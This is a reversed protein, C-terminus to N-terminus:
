KAHSNPGVKRLITRMKDLPSASPERFVIGGPVIVTIETGSSASSVITLKGGIRAVRERMGQMGFHGAKGHDGIASDIGVGNDKVQLTLDHGYKLEVELRSGKSHTCANRIAEFGVRYIEDRVVPHLEKADGTVSFSAETPGLLRCEETARQFSEALDNQQTTSTRLSNLVARGEQTAQGLWVSLQEVAHRMREPDDSKKLANDAVLKSGQITQLFTDHLERAMRTREALREDFRASLSDHIQQVRLRYFVWILFAGSLVCLGLFWKTQFWAPAVSFDLSAGDNNWIGDSNAAAVQFTYKGPALNNYIAERRSGADLWDHSLGVLRYRFKVKDPRVFSLASYHIELSKINSSLAVANDAISYPKGDAAVAEIHVPPAVADHPIRRPDIKQLYQGNSFWVQGDESVAARSTSIGSFVGETSDFLRWPVQTTKEDWWRQIDVSRVQVLGSSMYLWLSGHGDDVMNIVSNTASGVGLRLTRTKGDQLRILDNAPYEWSGERDPVLGFGGGESLFKEFNGDRFWFLQGRVTVLWLGVGPHASISSMTDQGLSQPWNYREIIVGKKIHNLASGYEPVLTIVWLDGSADESLEVVTGIDADGEYRVLHFAGDKYFALRRKGAVWMTGADDRYLDEISGIESIAIHRTRRSGSADLICLGDLGGAWVEDGTATAAVARIPAGVLGEREGYSLVSLNYFQDLGQPTVVWISGEHDEFIQNVVDGTLGDRVSIHDVRSGTIRYLGDGSTGIWVCGAADTFLSRVKIKRGDLGPVIYDELKNQRLFVLGENEDGDEIGAFIAGDKSKAIAVVMKPSTRPKAPLPFLQPSRGPIWHVLKNEGGLWRAGGQELLLSAFPGHLGDKGQNACQEQLQSIQCISTANEFRGPTFWITGSSDEAFPGPHFINTGLKQLKGDQWRFVGYSRSSIYLAGDSAAFLFRTDEVYPTHAEPDPLPTFQTGDFRYLQHRTGIWLYGDKTQAISQPSAELGREGVRWPIHAYQTIAARPDLGFSQLCATLLISAILALRRM